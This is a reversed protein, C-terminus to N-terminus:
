KKLYREFWQDQEWLLHMINARAAYGHSEFPLLVLRAIAGHGKLAQFYRESQLTFTGPNNDVIGHILLLPTKLKHAHNFPSMQHYVETAEWFTREEAQFGFPTLTRNYAGSRAIGCAFLDSHTLLNATMFAGYSHGGIGVRSTDIIGRANVADIAAEANAVLQPIYTDNPEQEGEGVVPFDAEDLVVYGKAAWYVPTGYSLYTFEHPSSIVQGAADASKFERPYAWIILPLKVGSNREYGAPIYLTASLDIGDARKYKIKEKSVDKFSSYPHPFDTIKMLDGTNKISRIYYNPNEQNTEISTIILGEEPDILKVIREYTNIGDARWLRSIQSDGLTYTDLFARSGEPSCGAGILFVRTKDKSFKLVQKGVSNRTRVFNGPDGYVDEANRDFVTQSSTEDSSPDFRYTKTNRSKWWFDVVFALHQDGWYIEHFRNVLNILVKKKATFPADWQYVADRFTVQNAPDGEDLAEVWFLASPEDPRWDIERVGKRVADFAVPIDDAVPIEAVSAVKNGKIDFVEISFPFRHYPVVYSFPETFSQILVYNSDPSVSFSAVCKGEAIVTREGNLHVRELNVSTFYDFNHVDAANKLLDPYTRGPTKKGSSELIVPGEPLSEESVLTKHLTNVTKVLLTDNDRWAISHGTVENLLIGEIRSASARPIDLVWLELSKGTNNCFALRSQDPAYVFSCLLPDDPLGTVMKIEGSGTKKVSLQQQYTARSVGFNEPNIRLGGFKYEKQSLEHLSKYMSKVGAFVIYRGADDIIPSPRPAVDALELIAKPPLQYKIDDTNIENM